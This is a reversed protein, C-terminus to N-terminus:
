SEAPHWPWAQTAMGGDERLELMGVALTPM